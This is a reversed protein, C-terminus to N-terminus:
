SLKRGLAGKLGIILSESLGDQTKGEGSSESAYSLPKVFGEGIATLIPTRSKQPHSLRERIEGWGRRISSEKREERLQYVSKAEARDRRGTASKERGNKITKRAHDKKGSM